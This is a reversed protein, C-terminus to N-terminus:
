KERQDVLVEQRWWEEWWEESLVESERVVCM